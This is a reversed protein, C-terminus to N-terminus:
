NTYARLVHGEEMRDVKLQVTDLRESFMKLLNDTSSEIDLVKGRM